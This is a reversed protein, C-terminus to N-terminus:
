NMQLQNAIKLSLLFNRLSFIDQCKSSNQKSQNIKNITLWIYIELYKLVTNVAKNFSFPFSTGYNDCYITAKGDRLYQILYDYKLPLRSKILWNYVTLGMLVNKQPNYLVLSM